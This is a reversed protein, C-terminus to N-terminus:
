TANHLEARGKGVMIVSIRYQEALFKFGPLVTHKDGRCHSESGSKYSKETVVWLSDATIVDIACHLKLNANKPQGRWTQSM